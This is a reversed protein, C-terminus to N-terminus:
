TNEVINASDTNILMSSSTVNGTSDDNITDIVTYENLNNDAVPMAFSQQHSDSSESLLPGYHEIM